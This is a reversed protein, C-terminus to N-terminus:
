VCNPCVANPCGVDVNPLTEFRGLPLVKPDGLVFVLAKPEEDARPFRLEGQAVWPVFVEAVEVFPGEKPWDAKPECVGIAPCTCPVANPTEPPKAFRADGQAVGDPPPPVLGPATKPCDLPNPERAEGKPAGVALVAELM